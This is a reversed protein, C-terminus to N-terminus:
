HISRTCTDTHLLPNFIYGGPCSHPVNVSLFIFFMYSAVELEEAGPTELTGSVISLIIQM